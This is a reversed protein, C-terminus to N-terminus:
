LQIRARYLEAQTSSSARRLWGLACIWHKRADRGENSDANVATYQAPTPSLALLRNQCGALSRTCASQWGTHLTIAQSGTGWNLAKRSYPMARLLRVCRMVMLDARTAPVLANHSWVHVARATGQVIKLCRLCRKLMRILKLCRRFYPMTISM